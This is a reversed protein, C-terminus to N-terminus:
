CSWLVQEVPKRSPPACPGAMEPMAASETLRTSPVTGTASSPETAKSTGGPHAKNKWNSSSLPRATCVMRDNVPAIGPSIRPQRPQWSARVSAGGAVFDSRGSFM